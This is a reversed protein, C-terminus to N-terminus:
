WRRFTIWAGDAARTEAEGVRAGRPVYQRAVEKSVETNVTVIVVRKKTVGHEQMDLM